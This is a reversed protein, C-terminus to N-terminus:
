KKVGELENNYKERVKFSSEVEMQDFGSKGACVKFFPCLGWHTNCQSECKYFYKFDKKPDFNDAVMLMVDLDIIKEALEAEFSDLEASSRSLNERIFYKEPENEYDLIIRKLYDDNKETKKLKLRSKVNVNYLIRKPDFGESLAGLIYGTVQTDLSLKNIYGATVQSSTKHEVLVDELTKILQLMLDIKGAYNYKRNGTELIPFSFEKEHCIYKYKKLDKEYFKQYGDLLGELMAAQKDYELYEDPSLFNEFTEFKEWYRNLITDLNIQGKEYFMDLGEGFYTGFIFPKAIVKPTLKFLYSLLFKRKCSQFTTVMSNSVHVTDGFPKIAYDM